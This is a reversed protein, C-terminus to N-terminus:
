TNYTPRSRTILNEQNIKKLVKNNKSLKQETM